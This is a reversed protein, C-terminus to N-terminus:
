KAIPNLEKEQPQLPLLFFLYMWWWPNIVGGVDLLIWTCTHFIIGIPLLIYKLKSYFPILIFSCQFVIVGLSLTKCVIPYQYLAIGAATQHILLHQQLNNNLIWDLGSILIKEMGGYFYSLCILLQILVIGWAKTQERKAKGEEYLVFPYVMMAYTLTTYGHDYKNFGSLLQQYLLFSILCITASIWKHPLLIISAVSVLMVIYITWLVEVSPFIPLMIKGIGVPNYFSKFYVLDQFDFISDYIVIFFCFYLLPTAYKNIHNKLIYVNFLQNWKKTLPPKIENWFLLTFLGIESVVSIRCLVQKSKEIFFLEDFRWKETQLRPYFYNIWQALIDDKPSAYLVHGILNPLHQVAFWYLAWILLSISIFLLARTLHKKQM